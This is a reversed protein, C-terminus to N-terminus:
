KVLFPQYKAEQGTTVRAIHRAQLEFCRRYTVRIRDIPHFVQTQVREEYHHIFKKIGEQTLFVGRRAEQPPEFDVTTIAHTNIIRLVVSDVVIARFEEMLDLVLSPRSYETAHLFGVFPDLGVIRVAAQVGYVLLTYGFSLLSNVPDPPPRRARTVFGMDQQLLQKFAGYYLNGAHGELGLLTAADEAKDLKDLCRQIGETASKLEPKEKERLYRLLLTRQNLLKGRAIERAIGVKIAPEAAAQLQRQRLLGFKSETSFLRGHYRGYSSCFVCDIGEQLLYHIVPTTLNVNGFIIVQEVKITPFEQLAQGDKSVILRNGEKRLTAGQEILYLVPM